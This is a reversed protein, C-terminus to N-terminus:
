LLSPWHTQPSLPSESCNAVQQQKGEDMKGASKRKIEQGGANRGRREGKVLGKSVDRDGEMDRERGERESM